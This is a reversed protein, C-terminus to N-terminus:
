NGRPPMVIVNNRQAARNRKKARQFQFFALILFAPVIFADDVLGLVPILDPILDIPSAGYLLATFLPFIANWPIPNRPPVSSNNV